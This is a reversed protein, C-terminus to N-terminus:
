LIPRKLQRDLKDKDCRDMLEGNALMILFMLGKTPLKSFATKIEDYNSLDVKRENNLHNNM